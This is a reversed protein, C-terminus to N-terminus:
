ARAVAYLFRNELRYGGGATAFPLLAAAFVRDVEAAGATIALSTGSASLFALKATELDPYVFPCAVTATRERRWGAARLLEDLVGPTAVPVHPPADAPPPPMLVKLATLVTMADCHEPLDWVGFGLAGGPRTVRRAEELARVRDAAFQFANFGTVVDFSAGEFPLDEMPGVRVDAAPVRERAIAVLPAAADIGSVVAGRRAALLCALGAGCGIDLHRTGPGVGLAELTERFLPETGPEALRAWDRPRAGWLKGQEPASSPIPGGDRRPALNSSPNM